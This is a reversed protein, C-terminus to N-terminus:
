IGRNFQKGSLMDDGTCDVFLINCLNGDSWLKGISYDFSRDNIMQDAIISCLHKKKIFHEQEINKSMDLYLKVTTYACHSYRKSSTLLPNIYLVRVSFVNIQYEPM